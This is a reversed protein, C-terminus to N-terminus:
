HGPAAAPPKAAVPASVTGTTPLDAMGRGALVPITFAQTSLIGGADVSVNVTLTYIGDDKALVQVSHHVAVGEAPKQTDPLQAGSVVALGEEGDVKASIRDLTGTTPVLAIDMDAPTGAQPHERLLFKVQVPIPPTGAKLIAVAAVLNRALPDAPTAPKKVASSAAVAPAPHHGSGCGALLWLPLVSFVALRTLM